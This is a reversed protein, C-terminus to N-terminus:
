KGNACVRNNWTITVFDTPSRQCDRFDDEAPPSSQAMRPAQSGGTPFVFEGRKLRPSSAFGPATFSTIFTFTVKEYGYTTWAAPGGTQTLGFPRRKAGRQSLPVLADLADELEEFPIQQGVYSRRGDARKLFLHARCIQGDGAFEPAMWVHESVSFVATPRGFRAEVEAATQASASNFCLVLIVGTLAARM